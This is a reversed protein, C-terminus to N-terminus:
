KIVGISDTRLLFMWEDGGLVQSGGILYGKDKTQIICLPLEDSEYPYVQHVSTDAEFESNFKQLCIDKGSLADPTIGAAVFGADQTEAMSTFVVDTFAIEKELEGQLNRIQIVSKDNANLGSMLIKGSSHVVPGGILSFDDLNKKHQINIGIVPSLIYLYGGAVCAIVGGKESFLSNIDPLVNLVSDSILALPTNLSTSGFFTSRTFYIDNSYEGWFYISGTLDTAIGNIKKLHHFKSNDEVVESQNLTLDLNYSTILAKDFNLDFPVYQRVRGCLVIKDNVLLMREFSQYFDPQFFTDVVEGYPNLILLKPLGTAPLGNNLIIRGDPLELVEVARGKSFKKEFTIVSPSEEFEAWPNVQCSTISFLIILPFLFTTKM